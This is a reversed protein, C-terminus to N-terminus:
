TKIIRFNILSYYHRYSLILKIRFITHLDPWHVASYYLRMNCKFWHNRDQWFYDSPKHDDLPITPQFIEYTLRRLAWLVSSSWWHIAYASLSLTTLKLGSQLEKTRFIINSAEKDNTRTVVIYRSTVYRSTGALESSTRLNQLDSDRRTTFPLQHL